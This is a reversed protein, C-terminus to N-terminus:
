RGMGCNRGTANYCVTSRVAHQIVEDHSSTKSHMTYQTYTSSTINGRHVMLCWETFVYALTSTYSWANKIQGGSSSLDAEHGLRKARSSPNGSVRETAFPHTSSSTEVKALLLIDTGGPPFQVVIRRVDLEYGLCESHVTFHLPSYSRSKNTILVHLRRKAVVGAKALTSSTTFFHLAYFPFSVYGDPTSTL